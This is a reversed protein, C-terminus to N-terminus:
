RRRGPCMLTRAAAAAVPLSWLQLPGTGTSRCAQGATSRCRNPSAVPVMRDGAALQVLADSVLIRRRACHVRSKPRSRSSDAASRDDEASLQGDPGHAGAFWRLRQWVVGQGDSSRIQGCHLRRQQTRGAVEFAREQTMMGRQPSSTKRSTACLPLALPRSTVTVDAPERRVALQWRHSTLPGLGGLQLPEGRRPRRDVAAVPRGWRGSWLWRSRRIRHGSWASSPV